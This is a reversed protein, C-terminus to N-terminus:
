PAPSHFPLTTTLKLHPTLDAYLCRKLPLMIWNPTATTSIIRTSNPMEIASRARVDM